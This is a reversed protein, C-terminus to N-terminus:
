AEVTVELTVEVNGQMLASVPCDAVAEHVAANIEAESLWAARVTVALAMATIRYTDGVPGETCAAEVRIEPEGSGRGTLVGACAMALCSAHAAAVLEEPSTQSSRGDGRGALGYTQAPFAGSGVTVEGSGEVLRGSWVAAARRTVTAM